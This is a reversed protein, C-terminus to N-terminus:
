QQLDSQWDLVMNIPPKTAPVARMVLFREGNDAPAYSARQPSLDISASNRVSGFLM